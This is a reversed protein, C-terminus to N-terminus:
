KLSMRCLSLFSGVCYTMQLDLYSIMWMSKFLFLIMKLHNELYPQIWKEEQLIMQCYTSLRDYWARPAQKLGYLAKKLKFVQEPFQVDEFGPPQKVYVEENIFGNLHM